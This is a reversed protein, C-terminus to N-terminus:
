CDGRTYVNNILRMIRRTNKNRLEVPLLEQPFDQFCVPRLFRKISSTGVSTSRVDTTAPYPGGHFMSACVEVGTPVGGWLLRGSKSKLIPILTLYKEIDKQTAHLTSTLQGELSKAVSLLEDKTKCQVILTSPGFVENSLHKKQLFNEGSTQLVFSSPKNMLADSSLSSSGVLDVGPTKLFNHIESEYSEFIGPYLMSGMPEKSTIDALMRAFDESNSDKMVFILGPNTCFQGVGLLVAKGVMEAIEKYNKKMAEPLVFVPNVSGMEAYVPIPDPRSTASDFLARGGPLSGTFAVARTVPNKVLMLGIDYSMGHIMSFIVEPMKSQRIAKVIEKSVMESTGPHNPHTKVLVPNKAALAAITDGGAVSFALPFNSASFVVVPGLPIQMQRIDPKPIPERDRQALDIRADVFSGERVEEAFMFIQNLMRNCEARLRSKGLATEEDAINILEDSINKINEYIQDLFEGIEDPTKERYIDFAEESLRMALHIEDKDAEFFPPSLKNGTSPNFSSFSNKGKASSNCGVINKGNLEM